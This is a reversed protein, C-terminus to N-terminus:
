SVNEQEEPKSYRMKRVPLDSTKKALENKVFYSWIEYLVRLNKENRNIRCQYNGYGDTMITIKKGEHDDYKVTCKQPRLRPGKSARMEPTRLLRYTESSVADGGKLAIQTVKHEDDTVVCDMETIKIRGGEHVGTLIKDILMKIDIRYYRRYIGRTRNDVRQFLELAMNLYPVSLVCVNESGILLTSIYMDYHYQLTIKDRLEQLVEKPAIQFPEKSIYEIHRTEYCGDRRFISSANGLCKRPLAELIKDANINEPGTMVISRFMSANGIM